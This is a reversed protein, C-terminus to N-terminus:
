HNKTSVLSDIYLILLSNLSNFRIPFLKGITMPGAFFEIFENFEDNNKM